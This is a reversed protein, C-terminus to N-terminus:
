FGRRQRLISATTDPVVPLVRAAENEITLNKLPEAVCPLLFGAAKEDISLGPWDVRYRIAGSLEERTTQCAVTGKM